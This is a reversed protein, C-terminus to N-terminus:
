KIHLYDISHIGNVSYNRGSSLSDIITFIKPYSQSKFLVPLLGGVNFYSIEDSNKLVPDINYAFYSSDKLSKKQAVSIDISNKVGQIHNAIVAIDGLVTYYIGWGQNGIKLEYITYGIYDSENKVIQEPNAVIEKTVTGDPLKYEVIKPEFFGGVQVFNNAIDQIKLADNKSDNLEILVKYFAKGEASEIAFAFENQFLGLLDKKLDVNPGLYQKFQNDLFNDFILVAAQDGGSVVEIMRKLQNELDKGGWFALADELIYDALDAHYTEKFNLYKSGSVKERDLALFSEIKFDNELAVLVFGEAKFLKILPTIGEMSIGKQTFFSFYKLFNDNVQDFNLYLSAASAFPLNNEINQYNSTSSLAEDDSKNFVLLNDVTTRDKGFFLLDGIMAQYLGNNNYLKEPKYKLENPDTIEAFYLQEITDINDKSHLLALGVERGLLPRLQEPFNNNVFNEPSYEPYKRLLKKTNLYQNHELNNNITLVAITRDAPLFRAAPTPRLATNFLLIGVWLLALLMIMALVGGFIKKKHKHFKDKIVSKQPSPQLSKIPNKKEETQRNKKKSRSKRGM